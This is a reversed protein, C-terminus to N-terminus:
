RCSSRAARLDRRLQARAIATSRMMSHSSIPQESIATSVVTPMMADTANSAQRKKPLTGHYSNRNPSCHLGCVAIRASWTPEEPANPATGSNQPVRM